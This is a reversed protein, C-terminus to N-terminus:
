ANVTNKDLNDISEEILDLTMEDFYRMDLEKAAQDILKIKLEVERKKSKKAAYLINSKIQSLRNKLTIYQKNYQERIVM